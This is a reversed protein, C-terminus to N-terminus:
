FGCTTTNFSLVASSGDSNGGLTEYCAQAANKNSHGGRNSINGSTIDPGIGPWAVSGFRSPKASLYLSSPCTQSGPVPNAYNTIGSPVESSDWKIGATDNASAVNSASVVDWNGWRLTTRDVNTDEPPINGADGDTGLVYITKDRNTNGTLSEYQIHRSSNGLVNCVLNYFRSYPYLIMPITNGTPTAGPEPQYGSWDNRFATIFHHSGHFSDSYMGPGINGEALIYDIGGAHMFLGHSQWTNGGGGTYKHNISFNYAVVCGSGSGNVTVPATVLQFINNEILCDGGPGIEVGYSQSAHDAGEYFYSDRITIRTSHFLLVHARGPQISRVRQLWCGVCNFFEVAAAPTAHDMSLDEIGIGKIPDTAWWAQPTRGSSWNPMYLGPSFTVDSGNIATVTVLQQQARGVRQASSAGDIACDSASQCIYIDGSDSVDDTLDFTVPDGVQLSTVSSFTLTTQGRSFTGTLDAVNSPSQWYSTDLSPACISASTGKCTDTGSFVLFTSDSGQGRLSINNKGSFTLGASLTFTGAGLEVYHNADCGSIATNIQAATSTSALVSTGTGTTCRARSTPITGAGAAAWSPNPLTADGGPLRAAAIPNTSTPVRIKFLPVHVQAALLAVM